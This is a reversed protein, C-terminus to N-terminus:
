FPIRLGADFGLRSAEGKLRLFVEADSDKLFRHTFNVTIGLPRGDKNSLSFSVTNEKFTVEAGFEMAKIGQKNYDMEFILGLNRSFKWTGYLCILKQKSLTQKLGIGLRYKIVGKQPYINPTEIQARFDFRSDFSHELIYTLRNSDTIQWFGSFIITNSVRAKSKLDTRKYEYVIQQNENVDWEGELTLIDPNIKKVKFCLRNNEDAFLTINLKLIQAHLLGDKDYSLIEFALIDRDASIIKGKLTLTDRQFRNKYKDLTLALNYESDLKWSGQFVIRDSLGYQRLWGSPENLWYVLRNDKDTLFRGDPVISRSGRKIVLRNDRDVFYREKM